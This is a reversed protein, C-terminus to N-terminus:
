IKFEFDRPFCQLRLKLLGQGVPLIKLFSLKRTMESTTWQPVSTYSDWAESSSHMEFHFWVHKILDEITDNHNIKLNMFTKFSLDEQSPSELGKHQEENRLM